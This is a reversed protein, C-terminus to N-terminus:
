QKLVKITRNFNQSRYQIFYVGKALSPLATFNIEYQNGDAVTINKREMTRGAADMLRLDSNGNEAARFIVNLTNQFPTPNAILWFGKGYKLERAKYTLLQYAKKMDPIGFGYRNDPNNYKDSSKYVADLIEMNNFQPFAQWLCAILGAINPNSFSTGNGSVATNFLSAITTGQGISVINPKVKGPYGYSSFSAITGVNNVAGVTCVSDADSPFSIYKWSNNGENGASNMVIMGKKAALAAGRTVVTSNKYFESYSHNFSADDYTTYGLSSSIMDAGVSDAFEAGAVWNHEEIPFEGVVNETRLLWFSAKPATGVMKGPANAAIISLCYFGHADDENVSNDFAVLDREGLFQNNNRASDLFTNTKYSNFGGDLMAIIKGQGLLGKNHLFDGNHISIQNFSNGYNIANDAQKATTTQTTVSVTETFKVISDPQAKKLGVSFSNKVFPLQKIQQLANADTTQILIQNLWKSRSLLTVAGTSLVANIYQQSVPIDTSDFNLQYNTRRAIARASLYASPASLSFTTGGKDTFQIIYKSYQANATQIFLTCCIGIYLKLLM